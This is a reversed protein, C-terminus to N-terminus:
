GRFVLPIPSSYPSFQTIRAKVTKPQDVRTVSLCVSLCVSNGYCIRAIAVSDRTFLSMPLTNHLTFTFPIYCNGVVMVAVPVHWIPDYLIVQWWVSTVNGDKGWGTLDPVRNLLRPPICSQSSKHTYSLLHMIHVTIFSPRYLLVFNRRCTGNVLVVERCPRVLPHRFIGAGHQVKKVIDVVSLLLDVIGSWYNYMAPWDTATVAKNNWTPMVSAYSTILPM